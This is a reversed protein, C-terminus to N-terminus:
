RSQFLYIKNDQLDSSLPYSKDNVSSYYFKGCVCYTHSCAPAEATTTILDTRKFSSQCLIKIKSNLFFFVKMHNGERRTALIEHVM